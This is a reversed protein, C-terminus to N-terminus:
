NRWDLAGFAGKSALRFPTGAGDTRRIFIYGGRVDYGSLYVVRTDDPSFHGYHGIQWDPQEIGSSMNFFSLTGWDVPDVLLANGSTSVDMWEALRVEGLVRADAPASLPAVLVESATPTSRNYVLEASGRWSVKNVGAPIAVPTSIMTSTDLRRAGACSDLYLLDSGSPHYDISLIRCVPLSKTSLKAGSSDYRVVKLTATSATAGVEEFALEGGGPKMDLTFIRMRQPARYVSRLRSGDPDVLYIESYTGAKVFAIQQSGDDAAMAASSALLIALASISRTM